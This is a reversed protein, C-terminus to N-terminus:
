LTGARHRCRLMVRITSILVQRPISPNPTWDGPRPRPRSVGLDDLDFTLPSWGARQRQRGAPGCWRRPCAM